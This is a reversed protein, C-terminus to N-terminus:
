GRKRRKSTRKGREAAQTQADIPGLTGEIAQRDPASKPEYGRLAEAMARIHDPTTGCCGGIIRAGADRAMRAYDAMIEHSGSYVIEGDRYEPIGCNGKAVLIDNAEAGRKIGLVTDILTGPGVGCNAGFALLQTQLGHAHGIADEPTVGMMTRGATDFTMTAVVPLGTGAAGAVAARIEEKSSITEIWLVDVGGAALGEAQEAFAAEGDAESLTGVPEFIEGTPGMSGGVVVPRGAAEAQERAIRAGTENIEFARTEARHLKLRFRNAGFTNTLIIDSGAEIFSRHLEAVRDPHEVNWLDPAAGTELGMAFMNTGTAGDALLYEREALLESLLDSM